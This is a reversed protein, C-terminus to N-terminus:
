ASISGMSMCLSFIRIVNRGWSLPITVSGQLIFPEALPCSVLNSVGQMVAVRMCTNVTTGLAPDSALMHRMLKTFHQRVRVFFDQIHQLCVKAASAQEIIAARVTVHWVSSLIEIM